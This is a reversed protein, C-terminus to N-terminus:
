VSESFLAEAVRPELEQRISHILAGLSCNVEQKDRRLIFGGPLDRREQALRLRGGQNQEQLRRNAEEIFQDDIFAEETPSIIVEEDGTEVNKLLLELLFDRRTQGKMELLRESAGEFVAEILEQKHALVAKRLELEATAIERNFRDQAWQQAREQAQNQVEKVQRDTSEQIEKAQAEFESEIQRVQEEADSLIKQTIKEISMATDRM